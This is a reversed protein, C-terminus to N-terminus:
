EREGWRQITDIVIGLGVITLMAGLGEHFIATFPVHLYFDECEIDKTAPDMECFGYSFGENDLADSIIAFGLLIFIVGSFTSLYPARKWFDLGLLVVALFALNSFVILDM